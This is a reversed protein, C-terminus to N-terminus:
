PILQPSNGSGRASYFKRSMSGTVTLNLVVNLPAHCLSMSVDNVTCEDSAYFSFTYGVNLLQCWDAPFMTRVVYIRALVLQFIPKHAAHFAINYLLNVYLLTFVVEYKLGIIV